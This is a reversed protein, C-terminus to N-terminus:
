EVATICVDVLNVKESNSLRQLMAERCITSIITDDLHVFAAVNATDVCQRLTISCQPITVTSYLLCTENCNSCLFWKTLCLSM